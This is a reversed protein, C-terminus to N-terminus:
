RQGGLEWDELEEESAESWDARSTAVTSAAATTRGARHEWEDEEAQEGEDEEQTRIRCASLPNLRHDGGSSLRSGRQAEEVHQLVPHYERRGHSVDRIYGQVRSPLIPSSHPAVRVAPTTLM